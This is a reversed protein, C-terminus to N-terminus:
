HERELQGDEGGEGIREAIFHRAQFEIKPLETRQGRVFKAQDHIQRVARPQFPHGRDRRCVTLPGLGVSGEHNSGVFDDAPPSNGLICNFDANFGKRRSPVADSFERDVASLFGEFDM